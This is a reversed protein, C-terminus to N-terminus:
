QSLLILFSDLGIQEEVVYVNECGIFLLMKHLYVKDISEEFQMQIKHENGETQTITYTVGSGLGDFREKIQNVDESGANVSFESVNVNGQKKWIADQDHFHVEPAQGYTLGVAFFACATLLSKITNM